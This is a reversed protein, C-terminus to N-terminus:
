GRKIVPVDCLDNLAAPFTKLWQSVKKKNVNVVSMGELCGWLKRTHQPTIVICDKMVRIKVPLGNIFGANALWKGNLPLYRCDVQSYLECCASSDEQTEERTHVPAADTRNGHSRCIDNKRILDRVLYFETSSLFNIM